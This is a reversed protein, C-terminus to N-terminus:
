VHRVMDGAEPQRKRGFWRRPAQRIRAVTKHGAQFAGWASSARRYVSKISRWTLRHLDLYVALAVPAAFALIALASTGRIPSLAPALVQSAAYGALTAGIAGFVLSLRYVHQGTARFVPAGWKLISNLSSAVQFGGAAAVIWLLATPPAYTSHFTTIAEEFGNRHYIWLTALLGASLTLALDFVGQGVMRLKKKTRAARVGPVFVVGLIALVSVFFALFTASWLLKLPFNGDTSAPIKIYRATAYWAAGAFGLVVALRDLPRQASAGRVALLPMRVPKLVASLPLVGALASLGVLFTQSLTRMGLNSTAEDIDDCGMLAPLSNEAGSAVRLKEVIPMISDLALVWDGQDTQRIANPGLNWGLDCRHAGEVRDHDLQHALHPIEERVVQYQLARACLALTLSGDGQLLDADIAERVDAELGAGASSPPVLERLLAERDSDGDLPHSPDPSLARALQAPPDLETDRYLAHLLKAREVDVLLRALSTVGDIRGWMFDNARWSSRYFGAFHNVRIGALKDRASRPAAANAAGNAGVVLLSADLMPTLQAVKVTQASEIDFDDSFTRRIVEIALARGLFPAVAFAPIAVDVNAPRALLQAASPLGTEEFISVPLDAYASFFGATAPVLSDWIEQNDGQARKTLRILADERTQASEDDLLEVDRSAPNLPMVFEDYVTDLFVLQQEIQMRADLISDATAGDRAATLAGSLLDIELQLVRQAVRTGWKWGTHDAPVAVSDPIWPLREAGANPDGFDEGLFQLIRRARRPATGDTIGGLLEELSRRARRNQYASFLGQATALLHSYDLSLLGLGIDATTGSRQTVDDLALLQDIIRADRPLNFTYGLVKALSPQEPDDNDERHETPAANVYCLFRRTPGNTRRRPLLEIAQKIPANELLGGDIAYRTAGEFGAIRAADGFLKQPEFAGPFSASARAAAALTGPRYDRWDRFRLPSRYERAFFPQDWNDWFCKEEGAVDTAQVDLLVPLEGNAKPPITGLLEQFAELVQDYFRKGQMVSGPTEAELSQLLSSLDGIAIWKKRLFTTDLKTDYVIAGALLAGNLGGASAGALIDITLRRDFAHCIAAYLEDSTRASAATREPPKTITKRDLKGRARRAADLEVAVGGMWVALSVGGNWAM